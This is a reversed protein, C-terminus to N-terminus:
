ITEVKKPDPSIAHESFVHGFFSIRKVNFECKKENVTLGAKSLSELTQDLYKRHEEESRGFVLIDDSINIAGNVNSIVESITNQFM